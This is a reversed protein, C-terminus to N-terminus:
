HKVQHPHGSALRLEHKHFRDVVVYRFKVKFLSIFQKIIVTFM